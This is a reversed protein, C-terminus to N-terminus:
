LIRNKTYQHYVRHNIRWSVPRFQAQCYLLMYTTSSLLAKLPTDLDGCVMAVIRIMNNPAPTCLMNYDGLVDYNKESKRFINRSKKITPIYIDARTRATVTTKIEHTNNSTGITIEFQQM